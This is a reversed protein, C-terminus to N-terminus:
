SLTKAVEDVRFTEIVDGEKIDNFNELVIGCEYGTAVSKVDDRNRRLSGISGEYVVRGDRVVRAKAGRTSEGDTQYCGAINGLASSKFVARIEAHGTVVERAEPALMGELSQQIENLAEYIVRYTRIEVGEQEALAQVKAPATVHFGIIVAESASALMVDSESIMGVGTHVLNVAVEQNGLDLFSSRLVDVSGQVDAKAVINLHKQDGALLREHFDELSMRKVAPGQKVKRRSQRQEAISRVTREEAAAVFLDGAAPPESFGTVLVPTSPGVEPQEKGLSNTMTRVHGYSTGALFVDGQRLTGNQVLVWAVPGLHRDMQAEVVVGRARKKPNAKLELTEAQLVLLELLDEMGDGAKASINQMMTKGGWAEDVLEYQTLEQRVRDPEAEPKDCKNVAVVLPVEAARAHNIAGITQPQVGDDAAVVLVVIDTAQAGRARMETFAEHGPTDLFVLRGNETTVEYAAIHQTIGGAEGSAVNAKRVWDLLSTKGHDVHGMVTIVPARPELDEANDAEEALVEREEPIVARLEYGFHDAVKEMLEMDLVQNKNVLVNHEMLELIVDNVGVEMANAFQEVTISEEVELPMNENIQADTGGEEDGRKKKKKKKAGSAVSGSTFERIAALAERRMTDEARQREARKQKKRATKGGGRKSVGRGGSREAAPGESEMPPKPGRAPPAGAGGGTRAKAPRAAPAPRGGGQQKEQAKRIVEAVVDPDPQPLNPKAAKAKERRRAEEEHRRQAEALAGGHPAADGPETPAQAEAQAAEAAAQAAAQERAEEEEDLIMAVPEAAPPTDGPTSEGPTSEGSETEGAETDGARAAQRDAGATAADEFTEREEPLIEAQPAGAAAEQAGQSPDAAGPTGSEAVPAPASSGNGGADAPAGAEESAATKKSAAKSKTATKKKAAAKRKAASKSAAKKLNEARKRAKAREQEIAKRYRDLAAPDEDVEILMDIQDDNIEHEVGSIDFELSRLTTVAEEPSMDLRSALSAITQM